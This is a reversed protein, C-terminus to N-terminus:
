LGWEIKFLLEGGRRDYNMSVLKTTRSYSIRSMPQTMIEFRATIPLILM